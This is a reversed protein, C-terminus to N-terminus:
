STREGARKEEIRIIAPNEVERTLDYELVEIADANKPGIRSLNIASLADRLPGNRDTKRMRVFLRDAGRRCARDAYWHLFAEEVRKRAVRCSMVFDILVPGDDELRVAAFGVVGYDGYDDAVDFAFCEVNVDKLLAQFEPETYRTASLNFQNSRQLLELCRPIRTESVPGICMVMNCSKLFDDIDGDWSGSVKKRRAQALYSQRRTRSTETVPVDFEPRSLLEDIRAADFTRVQPLTRGVEGREFASDDIFAFTDVNIDLEEAIKRLSGSKPGWHIAPYLFYDALGLEEIKPWARDFDNKSAITQLIGRADLQRILEMAVPRPVVGDPGDEGIIGDWITGDLDWAVCKVKDAPVPGAGSTNEFAVVDLWTFILRLPADNDPWVRIKGPEEPLESAPVVLENWGHSVDLSRRFVTQNRKEGDGERDIEIQLRHQDEDPSFFRVLLADANGGDIGTNAFTRRILRKRSKRIKEALGYAIPLGRVVAEARELVDPRWVMARLERVPFLSPRGPWYAELKAWRRFRVDAGYPFLGDFSSNAAIGYEFRACKGDARRAYLPCTSYCSPLACEVCHEEWVLAAAMAVHPGSPAAAIADATHERRWGSRDKWARQYM